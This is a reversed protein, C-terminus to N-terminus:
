IDHLNFVSQIEEIRDVISQRTIMIGGKKDMQPNLPCNFDGGVIIKDEFTRDDKKFVNILHDYFKASESDKNPAYINVLFYKEDNIIAELAIYRGLPDVIKKNIKCDFGNRFLIGVGRANTSGHALEIPGGWEAKWQKEKQVISHTEQM